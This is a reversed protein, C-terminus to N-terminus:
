NGKMVHIINNIAITYKTVFRTMDIQSVRNLLTEVKSVIEDEDNYLFLSVNDVFEPHSLDNRMMPYTNYVLAEAVCYGFNEEISNTLMVKSEALFKHYNEKSLGDHIEIIGDQELYKAYDFLWKKNSKFKPRSTTVVIKVNPNRKKLIYAFDLSLNPRKEWDFRNSIIIQNKKELNPFTHYEDIFIPNGTVHIKKSLHEAHLPVLRREIFAKKHYHSGVFVGDCMAIWGVETYQQYPAAVEFADEKTYSAAHLFAYIKVPVKNMQSMLRIAEIGWFELDAIFFVTDIEIENNQFMKAIKQLQSNKYHVTSNMPLFAGVDVHDTLVEGDIITVAYGVKKFEIPFNRYWQETYREELPEIPVYILKNM